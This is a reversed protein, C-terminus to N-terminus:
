QHSTGPASPPPVTPPSVLLLDTRTFDNGVFLLPHGTTAALAYAMCDGFNLRGPHGTGRGFRRHAEAAARGQEPSLAIVEVGLEALYEDLDERRTEAHMVLSFELYTGASMLLEPAEAM